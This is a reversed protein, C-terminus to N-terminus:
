QQKLVLITVSSIQAKKVKPPEVSDAGPLKDTIYYAILTCIHTRTKGPNGNEKVNVDEDDESVWAPATLRAPYFEPRTLVLSIFKRGNSLGGGGGGGPKWTESVAKM